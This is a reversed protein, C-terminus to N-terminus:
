HSTRVAHQALKDDLKELLEQLDVLNECTDATAAGAAELEELEAVRERLTEIIGKPLIKVDLGMMMM